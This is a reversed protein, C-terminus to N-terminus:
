PLTGVKTLGASCFTFGSAIGEASALAPMRAPGSSERRSRCPRRRGLSDGRVSSRGLGQFRSARWSQVVDGSHAGPLGDRVLSQFVPLLPAGWRADRRLSPAKTGGPDLPALALRDPEMRRPKALPGRTGPRGGERFGGGGAGRGPVPTVTPCCASRPAARGAASSTTPASEM